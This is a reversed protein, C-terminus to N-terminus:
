FCKIIRSRSMKWQRLVKLILTMPLLLFLEQNLQRFKNDNLDFYQALGSEIDEQEKAIYYIMLRHGLIMGIVAISLMLWLMLQITKTFLPKKM